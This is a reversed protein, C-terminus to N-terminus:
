KEIEDDGFLAWIIGAVISIFIALVMVLVVDM